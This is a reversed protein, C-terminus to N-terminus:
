ELKLINELDMIRFKFLEPKSLINDIAILIEYYMREVTYNIQKLDKKLLKGKFNQM